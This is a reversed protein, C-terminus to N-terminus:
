EWKTIGSIKLNSSCEPCPYNELKEVKIHRLRIGCKSCRNKSRFLIKGCELEGSKRNLENFIWKEPVCIRIYLQSELNGCKRCKYIRREFLPNEREYFPKRSVYRLNLHFKKLIKKIKKGDTVNSKRILNDLSSYLKGTGEKLSTFYSCLNCELRYERGMNLM